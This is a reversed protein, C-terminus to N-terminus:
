PRLIHPKTHLLTATSGAQLTLPLTWIGVAASSGRLLFLVKNIQSPPSTPTHTEQERGARNGEAWGTILSDLPETEGQLRAGRDVARKSIKHYERRGM